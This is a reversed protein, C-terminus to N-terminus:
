STSPSRTEKGCMKCRGIKGAYQIRIRLNRGCHQCPFVIRKVSPTDPDSSDMTALAARAESFILPDQNDSVDTHLEQIDPSSQSQNNDRTTQHRALADQLEEIKQSQFTIDAELGLIYNDREFLDQYTRETKDKIDQLAQHAARESAQLTQLQKTLQQNQTSKPSQTQSTNRHDSLEAQLEEIIANAKALEITFKQELRQERRRTATLKYQLYNIRRDWNGKWGQNQATHCLLIAEEYRADKEEIVSLIEFGRHRPLNEVQEQFYQQAVEPAIQIQAQCINIAQQKSEHHTIRYRHHLEILRDYIIYTDKINFNREALELAKNLLKIALLRDEPAHLDQVLSNLLAAASGPAQRIQGTTLRREGIPDCSEQIREREHKSLQNTWWHTLQYHAIFGQNPVTKKALRPLM